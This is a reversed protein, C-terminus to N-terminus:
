ALSAGTLASTNDTSVFTADDLVESLNDTFTAPMLTTFDVLGNNVVKMSYTINSGETTVTTNVSKEITFSPIHPVGTATSCGVAEDCLGTPGPAVATAIVRNGADPENVKASYTFIQEDAIPLAGSWQLASGFRTLGDANDIYAADDLLDTLDVSATAPNLTTYETQGINRVTVVYNITMGEEAITESAVTSVTYRLITTVNSCGVSGDCQGNAGAVIPNVLRGDGTGFRITTVSYTLTVVEGEAMAQQWSLTSGTLTLGPTADNNYTADDVIGDISETFRGTVATQGVNKVTITYTVITGEPASVMDAHQSVTFAVVLQPNMNSVTVAAAPGPYTESVALVKGEVTAGDGVTIAGVSLITGEFDAGAGITIAGLLQWYINSAKAGNVLNTVAAAGFSMAAGVQVIFVADADGQADFTLPAAAAITLAGSSFWLGPTIIDGALDGSLTGTTGDHPLNQVYQWANSADEAAQATISDAVPHVTGTVVADGDPWAIEGPGTIGVDGVITSKAKSNTVMAGLLGFNAASGLDPAIVPQTSTVGIAASATAVPGITAPASAAILAIVAAAVASRALRAHISLM